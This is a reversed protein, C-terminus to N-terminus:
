GEVIRDLDRSRVIQVWALWLSSPRGPSTLTEAIAPLEARTARAHSKRLAEWFRAADLTSLLDPPVQRTAVLRFILDAVLEREAPTVQAAPESDSEQSTALDAFVSLVRDRAAAPTQLHELLTRAQDFTSRHSGSALPDAALGARYLEAAAEIEGLILMAEAVTVTKWYDGSPESGIIQVVQAAYRRAAELDDLLVSKSAANVGVYYDEPAAQFAEAYLDRSRRLYQRDGTSRHRDMWTRALIGLTEPDREGQDYLEELILQAERWDGKRALALGLLQRPRLANPFRRRCQEIVALARDVQGLGILAEAVQCLLAPTSHWARSDSAALSSLREVDGSVRAAQIRARVTRIEEDLDAALRVAERPLPQGQLGYLLQLLPTGTPGERSDIFDVYIRDRLREPLPSPDLRAVVFRFDPGTKERALFAEMELATWNSATYESSFVMVAAASQQLGQELTKMLDAGPTFVMQDLFVEYGLSHLVDYLQLAWQRDVARYSVYVHWSQGPLLRRPRPALRLWEDRPGATTPLEIPALLYKAHKSVKEALPDSVGSLVASDIVISGDSCLLSAANTKARFFVALNTSELTMAFAALFVLLANGRHEVLVVQFRAINNSRGERHLLHLAASDASMRALVLLTERVFTLSEPAGALARSAVDVVAQATDLPDPGGGFERFAREQWNLGLESLVDYYSGYWALWDSRDQQQPGSKTAVLQALLLANVIDRRAAAPVGSTFAVIASGAIVAQRHDADFTVGPGVRGDSVQEPTAIASQQVFAIAEANTNDAV